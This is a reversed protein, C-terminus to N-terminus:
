QVGRGRFNGRSKGRGRRPRRELNKGVVRLAFVAGVLAPVFDRLVSRIAM